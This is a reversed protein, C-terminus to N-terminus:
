KRNYKSKRRMNTHRKYSKHHKSGATQQKRSQIEKYCKALVFAESTQLGDKLAYMSQGADLRIEDSAGDDKFFYQTRTIMTPEMGWASTQEINERHKRLTGKIFKSPKISEDKRYCQKGVLLDLDVEVYNISDNSDFSITPIIWLNSDIQAKVVNLQKLFEDTQKQQNAVFTNYSQKQERFTNTALTKLDSINSLMDNKNKEEAKLKDAYTTIGEINLQLFADTTISQIKDTLRKVETELVTKTKTLEDKSEQLVSNATTLEKIKALNAKYTKVHGDIITQFENINANYTAVYQNNRKLQADYQPQLVRLEGRLHTIEDNETKCSSFM